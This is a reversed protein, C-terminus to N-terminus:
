TVYLSDSEIILPSLGAERALRLGFNLAEARTVNVDDSYVGIDAGTLMVLGEHNRIVFGYSVMGRKANVDMDCNLKLRLRNGFCLPLLQSLFMQVRLPGSVFLMICTKLVLCSLFLALLLRLMCFNIGRGGFGRCLCFLCIFKMQHCSLICMTGYMRYVLFAVLCFMDLFLRYIRCM